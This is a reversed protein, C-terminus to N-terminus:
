YGIEFELGVTRPRLRTAVGRANRADIAGGDDLLNEALLSLRWGRPSSLAVGADLALIADGPTGRTLSVKRASDYRLQAHTAIAYGHRLPVLQEWAGSFGVRPVNYVPDGKAIPTGPIADLYATDVVSGGLQVRQGPAPIFAVAFEAGGIAVGRSNVLGNINDTLPLRVAVNKWDSSFLAGELAVRGGQWSRRAGIEYSLIEDPDVAVPLDIGAERAALLSGAPQLQGSRFGSSVSGYVLADATPTWAVMFKPSVAPFRADIRVESDAALSHARVTDRFYRMGATLSWRDGPLPLTAEGFLAWADNRQRAHQVPAPAVVTEDLRTARRQYIGAIWKVRQGAPSAARLEHSDVDIRIDARYDAGPALEGEHLNSLRASSGVYSVTAAPLRREAVLSRSTWASARANLVDLLMGDLANYAGGPAASEWRWYNADIDTHADPTFRLRLRVTRIRQANLDKRGTPPDDVWGPLREDTWVLRAGLRDSVLPANFMAQVAQGDGGSRTTSLSTRLRAEVMDLVPRRTLIRITGGMAGEGFLTGQPGRLVEVREIDFARADPYWPVTVGTFPSEDLYYGNDNGGLSSSVGRLQVQTFGGGVDVSSAGPVLRLAEVVSNIRLADIQPAAVAAVALPVHERLEQRKRATVQVAGLEQVRDASPSDVRRPALRRAASRPRPAVVVTGDARVQFGLTTGALLRQLAVREDLWGQVSVRPLEDPLGSAVLQRGTQRSFALLAQDLPQSPIEFRHRTGAVDAAALSWPLCALVLAFVVLRWAWGPSRIPLRAPLWAAM